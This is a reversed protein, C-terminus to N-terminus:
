NQSEQYHSIDLIALCLIVKTASGPNGRPPPALMRNRWIKGFVVHFEFFKSGLPVHAGKSGGGSMDLITM